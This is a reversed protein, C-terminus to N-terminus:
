KSKKDLLDYIAQRDPGAQKVAAVVEQHTLSPYKSHVYEVESADNIDVQARDRGDAVNKKDPMIFTKITSYYVFFIGSDIPM